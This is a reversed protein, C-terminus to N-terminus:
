WRLYTVLLGGRPEWCLLGIQSPSCQVASRRLVRSVKGAAWALNKWLKLGFRSVMRTFAFSALTPPFCCRHRRDAPLHVIKYSRYSIKYLCHLNAVVIVLGLFKHHLGNACEPTDAWDQHKTFWKKCIGSAMPSISTSMNREIPLWLNQFFVHVYCFM